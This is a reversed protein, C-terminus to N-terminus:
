RRRALPNRGEPDRRGQGRREAARVAAAISSSGASACHKERRPNLQTCRALGGAVRNTKADVRAVGPGQCTATWVYGSAFVTAECPRELVAFQRVRRAARGVWSARLNGRLMPLGSARPDVALYVLDLERDRAARIARRTRGPKLDVVALTQTLAPMAAAQIREEPANREAPVVAAQKGNRHRAGYPEGNLDSLPRRRPPRALILWAIKPSGSVFTTALRGGV